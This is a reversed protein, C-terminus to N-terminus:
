LLKGIPPRIGLEEYVERVCADRPTEGPEVYGGPIDWYAKYTPRTRERGTRPSGFFSLSRWVGNGSETAATMCCYKAANGGTDTVSGHSSGCRTFRHGYPEGEGVRVLFSEVAVGDIAGVPVGGQDTRSDLRGSLGPHM